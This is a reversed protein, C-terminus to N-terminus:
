AAAASVMAPGIRRGREMPGGARQDRREVSPVLVRSSFELRADIGWCLSM